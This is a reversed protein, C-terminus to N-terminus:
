RTCPRIRGFVDIHAKMRVQIYNFFKIIKFELWSREFSLKVDLTSIIDLM